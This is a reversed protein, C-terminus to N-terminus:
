MEVQQPQLEEAVAWTFWNVWPSAGAPIPDRDQQHCLSRQAVLNGFAIQEVFPSDAPGVFAIPVKFNLPPAALECAPPDPPDGVYDVAAATVQRGDTTVNLIVYQASGSLPTPTRVGSPVLLNIWGLGVSVNAAGEITVIKAKFPTKKAATRARGARDAEIITVGAQRIERSGAGARAGGSHLAGDTQM